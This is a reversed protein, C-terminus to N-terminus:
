REEKYIEIRTQSMGTYSFFDFFALFSGVGGGSLELESDSDSSSSSSESESEEDSSSTAALGAALGAAALTRSLAISGGRLSLHGTEIM